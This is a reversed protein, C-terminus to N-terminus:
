GTKQDYHSSRVDSDVVTKRTQKQAEEGDTGSHALAPAIQGASPVTTDTMLWMTYKHFTKVELIKEAALAKADHQKTEYNRITGLSLGTIEAFQKQTLGEAKRIAKLKDAYNRSM